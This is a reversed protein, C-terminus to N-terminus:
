PKCRGCPVYGKEILTERDGTFTDRNKESMDGVSPCEPIHFRKTNTNLVYDYMPGTQEPQPPTWNEDLESEGTAYDILIGPQVNFCYVNLCIGEGQDEVSFAEMLVGSAVLNEGEYCPTVRYLVHNGTEEVYRAVQNEWPLMGETNLYRTGTILNKENANEGSLQYGILHCRNYLYRDAIRDYKITHWGSPRVNGISGREETPMLERCVNAFAVGCRGLSDLESYHEFVNVTIEEPLFFPMNQNIEMSAEGTYAPLNELWDQMLGTEQSDTQNELLEEGLGESAERPLVGGIAAQPQYERDDFASIAAQGEGASVPLSGQMGCASVALAMAALIGFFIGKERILEEFRRSFCLLLATVFCCIEM